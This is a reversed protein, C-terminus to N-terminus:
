STVSLTRVSAGALTPGTTHLHCAVATGDPTEIPEPDVTRCVDMVFPCRTHFRCGAPPDVPSPVDGTLM